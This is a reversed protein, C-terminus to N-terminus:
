RPVKSAMRLYPTKARDRASRIRQSPAGIDSSASSSSALSSSTPSSHGQQQDDESNYGSDSLLITTIGESLRAHPMPASSNSPIGTFVYEAPNNLPSPSSPNSSISSFSTESFMSSAHPSGPSGEPSTTPSSAILIRDCDSNVSAWDKSSDLGQVSHSIPRRYRIRIHRHRRSDSSEFTELDGSYPDSDTSKDTISLTFASSKFRLIPSSLEFDDNDEIFNDPSNSRSPRDALNFDAFVDTQEDADLSSPPFEAPDRSANPNMRVFYEFMPRDANIGEMTSNNQNLWDDMTDHSVADCWEIDCQACSTESAKQNFDHKVEVRNCTLGQHQGLTRIQHTLDLCSM